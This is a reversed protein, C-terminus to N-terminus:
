TLTLVISPLSIFIILSLLKKLFIIKRFKEKKKDYIM